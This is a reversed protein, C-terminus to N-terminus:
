EKTAKTIILSYKEALAKLTALERKKIKALQEEKRFLATHEKDLRATFEEDTEERYSVLKIAVSPFLFGTSCFRLKVGSSLMDQKAERVVKHLRSRLEDCIAEIGIDIDTPLLFEAEMNDIDAWGRFSEIELKQPM